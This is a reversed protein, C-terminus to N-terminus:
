LHPALLIIGKITKTNDNISPQASVLKSSTRVSRNELYSIVTDAGIDSKQLTHSRM